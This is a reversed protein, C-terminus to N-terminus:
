QKLQLPEEEMDLNMTEWELPLGFFASVKEYSAWLIIEHNVKEFKHLTIRSSATTTKNSM